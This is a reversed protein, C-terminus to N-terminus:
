KQKKNYKITPFTQLQTSDFDFYSIKAMNAAHLFCCLRKRVVKICPWETCFRICNQEFVTRQFRNRIWTRQM